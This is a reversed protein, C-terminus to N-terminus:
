TSNGRLVSPLLAVFLAAPLGNIHRVTAMSGGGCHVQIELGNRRWAGAKPKTHSSVPVADDSIGHLRLELGVRSLCRLTGIVKARHALTRAPMNPDFQWLARLQKASYYSGGNIEGGDPPWQEAKLANVVHILQACAREVLRKSYTGPSDEASIPLAEQFLIRGQDIAESEITHFTYGSVKERNIFAWTVAGCGRYNPLFSNHFNVVRGLEAILPKRLIQDCGAVLCGDVACRNITKLLLPDRLSHGSPIYQSRTKAMRTTYWDVSSTQATGRLLRKVQKVSWNRARNIILSQQHTSSDILMLEIDFRFCLRSFERFFLCSMESYRNGIFALRM